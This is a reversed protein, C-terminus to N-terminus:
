ENTLNHIDGSILTQQYPMPKVLWKTCSFFGSSKEKRGEKSQKWEFGDIKIYINVFNLLNLICLWLCNNRVYSIDFGISEIKM